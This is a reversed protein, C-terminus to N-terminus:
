DSSKGSKKAVIAQIFPANAKVLQKARDISLTKFDIVGHVPHFIRTSTRKGLNVLQYKEATAKPLAKNLESISIYKGKEM